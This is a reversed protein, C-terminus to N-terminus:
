LDLVLRDGKCGSCCIMMSKNASREAKSLVLDKHDPIGEIVQTECVACIGERCSSDKPVGAALVADLISQGPPVQVSIGSRRLEVTFGGRNAVPEARLFFEVHLQEPPWTATAREFAALMPSPGCCYLHAQRPAHKVIDDIDLFDGRAEDDLHLTSKTDDRSAALWRLRDIFAAEGRSRAAYYLQWSRGLSVLREIMSIIPTIGIGGAIFVAHGAGEELAFHNRPPSITLVDGVEMADHLYKSGGRSNRDLNVGIMYRHNEDQSNM